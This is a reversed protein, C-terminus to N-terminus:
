YIDLHMASGPLPVHREARLRPFAARVRQWWIDELHSAPERGSRRTRSWATRFFARVAPHEWHALWGCRVTALPTGALCCLPQNRRVGLAPGHQGSQAAACFERWVQQWREAPVDASGAAVGALWRWAHPPPTADCNLCLTLRQARLRDDPPWECVDAPLPRGLLMHSELLWQAAQARLGPARLAAAARQCQRLLRAGDAAPRRPVAAANLARLVRRWRVAESSRPAAAYRALPEHLCVTLSHM